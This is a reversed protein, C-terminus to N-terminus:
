SISQLQIFSQSLLKQYSKFWARAKIKQIVMDQIQRLEGDKTEKIEEMFRAKLQNNVVTQSAIFDDSVSAMYKPHIENFLLEYGLSQLSERAVAEFVQIDQESM